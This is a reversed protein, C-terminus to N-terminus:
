SGCGPVGAVCFDRHDLMECLGADDGPLALLFVHGAGITAGCAALTGHPPADGEPLDVDEVVCVSLGDCRPKAGVGQSFLATWPSSLECDEFCEEAPLDDVLSLDVAEPWADAASDVCGTVLVLLWSASSGASRRDTRCRQRALRM